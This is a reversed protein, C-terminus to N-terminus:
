MIHTNDLEEEQEVARDPCFVIDGYMSDMEQMIAQRSCMNDLLLNM